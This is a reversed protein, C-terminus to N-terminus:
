VSKSLITPAGCLCWHKLKIVVNSVVFKLLLIIENVPLGPVIYLRTMKFYINQKLIFQLFIICISFDHKLNLRQSRRVVLETGAILKIFNIFNISARIDPIRICVNIINLIQIHMSIIFFYIHVLWETSSHIALRRLM